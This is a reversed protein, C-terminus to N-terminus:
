TRVSGLPKWSVRGGIYEESLVGILEQRVRTEAITVCDDVHRWFMAGQDEVGGVLDGDVLLRHCEYCTRGPKPGHADGM